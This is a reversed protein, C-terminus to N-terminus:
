PAAFDSWAASINNSDDSIKDTEARVNQMMMKAVAVVVSVLAVHVYM